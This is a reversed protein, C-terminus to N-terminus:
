KKRGLLKDVLTRKAAKSQNARVNYDTEEWQKMPKLYQTKKPKPLSTPYETIWDNWDSKSITGKKCIYENEIGWDGYESKGRIFIEKWLENPNHNSFQWCEGSIDFSAWFHFVGESKTSYGFIVWDLGANHCNARIDNVLKLFTERNSTDCNNDELLARLQRVESQKM